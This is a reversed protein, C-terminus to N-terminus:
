YKFEFSDDDEQDEDIWLSPVISNGHTSSHTGISASSTSKKLNLKKKEEKLSKKKELKKVNKQNIEEKILVPIYRIKGRYINIRRKKNSKIDSSCNCPFLEIYIGISAIIILFIFLIFNSTKLIIM